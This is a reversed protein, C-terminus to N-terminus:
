ENVFVPEATKYADPYVIAASTSDQGEEQYQIMTLAPDPWQHWWEDGKGDESPDKQTGYPFYIKGLTGDHEIGELATVIADADTSGAEEIAQAIIAISDYAEMAYSEVDSKGMREKYTAAFAKGKETFQTEPVGIRQVFANQGDPVNQWYAGSELADQGTVFPLDLPGIGADAAQQTFNYAAEGTVLTIIMDPNEAKIRQVIGAYDQTGIDVSFTTSEVGGSELGKATEQSAPIGYDTNETLIAVKEVGPVTLAFQWITASAWSSLPAIRFIYKQKDGTITDNWTEAFVTPVGLRQAVDKSAVGVSSHYGGGVAVVGDQSIFKEMLAAGKEPLGESDGIVVEIDCGLVGGAANIDEEAILMAERMAEGGVVTGPASLPAIGGIKIPCDAAMAAGATVLAGVATATLLRFTTM